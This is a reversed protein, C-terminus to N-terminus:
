YRYSRTKSFCFAKKQQNINKISKYRKLFFHVINVDTLNEELAYIRNTTKFACFISLNKTNRELSFDAMWESRIKNEIGDNKEEGNKKWKTTDFSPVNM